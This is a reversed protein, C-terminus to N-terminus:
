RVRLVYGALTAVLRVRGTSVNVETPVIGAPLKPIEVSFATETRARSVLSSPPPRGDVTFSRAKFTLTRGGLTVTGVAEFRRSRGSVVEDARVLVTGDARLTVAVDKRRKALFSNISREGITAVADGDEVTLDFRNQRVLVDLSAEVGRMDVVLTDIALDEIVFDKAEVLVRPIRGQVIRYLIPFAEIQVSPRTRLGLTTRMGGSLQSEAFTELLASGGLALAILFVFPALLRKLIFM